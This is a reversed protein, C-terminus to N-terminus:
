VHPATNAILHEKQASAKVYGRFDFAAPLSVSTIDTNGRRPQVANASGSSNAEPVAQINADTNLDTSILALPDNGSNGGSGGPPLSSQQISPATVILNSQDF